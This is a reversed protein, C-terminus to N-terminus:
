SRPLKPSQQLHLLRKLIPIGEDANGLLAMEEERVPGEFPDEATPQMAM